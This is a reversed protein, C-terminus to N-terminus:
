EREEMEKIGGNDLLAILQERSPLPVGKRIYTAALEAYRLCALRAFNRALYLYLTSPQKDWPNGHVLDSRLEYLKRFHYNIREREEANKGLLRGLRRAIARVLGCDERTGLLAEISTVHWLIQEVPAESPDTFFAKVLYELATHFFSWNDPLLGDVLFDLKERILRVLQETAEGDLEFRLWSAPREEEAGDPGGASERELVSFNPAASPPHILDEDYRLYFPIRFGRWPVWSLHRENELVRELSYRIGIERWSFDKMGSPGDRLFETDLDFGDPLWDYLALCCLPARFLSLPKPVLRRALDDLGSFDLVLEGIGPVVQTTTATLCWYWALKKTDWVAYPYFIRNIRNASVRELEEENYHKLVFGGCDVPEKRPQLVDRSVEVLWVWELPLLYTVQVERTTFAKIYRQLLQASDPTAREYCDLYFGSRRFFHGVAEAWWRLFKSSHRDDDSFADRTCIVLERFVPQSELWEVAELLRSRESLKLYTVKGGHAVLKGLHGRAFDCYIKFRRILEERVGETM